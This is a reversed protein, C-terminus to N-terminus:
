RTNRRPLLVFSPTAAGDPPTGAAMPPTLTSSRARESIVRLDDVHQVISPDDEFDLDFGDELIEDFKMSVEAGRRELAQFAAELTPPLALAMM